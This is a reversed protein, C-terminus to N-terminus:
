NVFSAMEPFNQFSVYDVHRYSQRKMVVAQPLCKNCMGVPYPKHNPCKYNVKYSFSQMPM